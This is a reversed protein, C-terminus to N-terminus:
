WYGGHGKSDEKYAGVVLTDGSIAVSYGFYNDEMTNSAKIYAQKEWSSDDSRTYVYVAGSNDASNNSENGDIGTSDSDEFYAGVVLTDGSIAVSHGFRDKNDLTSATVYDQQTFSPDITLPYQAQQDNVLLSLTNGALHM